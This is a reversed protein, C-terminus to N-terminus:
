LWFTLFPYDHSGKNCELNITLGPQGQTQIIHFPPTDNSHPLVITWTSKYVYMDQVERVLAAVQINTLSSDEEKSKTLQIQSQLLQMEAKMDRKWQEIKRETQLDIGKELVRDNLVNLDGLFYYKSLNQNYFFNTKIEM